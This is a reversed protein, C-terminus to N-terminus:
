RTSKKHVTVIPKCVHYILVFVIVCSISLSALIHAIQTKKDWETHITQDAIQLFQM